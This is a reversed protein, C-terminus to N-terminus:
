GPGSPGPLPPHAPRPGPFRGPGDRADATFMAWTAVVECELGAPPDGFSWVLSSEDSVSIPGHRYEMAAYSETWARAAGRLKLAAEDGFGLDVVADARRAVPASTVGTMALTPIRGAVADLLHLM